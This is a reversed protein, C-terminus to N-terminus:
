FFLIGAFLQYDLAVEFVLYVALSTLLSVVTALRLSQRGLFAISAFLYLPISILFGLLYIGAVGAAVLLIAAYERGPSEPAKVGGGEVVWSGSRAGGRSVVRAIDIALLVLTVMGALLPVRRTTEDLTVFGVVLYAVVFLLAAISPLLSRRLAKSDGRSV